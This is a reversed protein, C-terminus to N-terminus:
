KVFSMWVRWYRDGSTMRPDFHPALVSTQDMAAMTLIM